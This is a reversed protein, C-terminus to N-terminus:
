SQMLYDVAFQAFLEMGTLICGEDINFSPSHLPHTLKNECNYGNRESREHCLLDHLNRDVKGCGLRFYTSPVKQSYFSFDESVMSPESCIILNSDGIVQKASKVFFETVDRNNLLVPALKEIKLEYEVDMAQAIGKLMQQMMEPIKERTETDLSRIGGKIIAEEPIINSSSGSNFSCVSIVASHLPNIRRSIISQIANVVQCGALIPDVTMHPLAGHGGRGKIVFEFRDMAAFVSGYNVMVKGAPIEPWVHAGICAKVDPKELVGEKIMLAAGGLTEEAPQFILKVNGSLENKLSYIIEAAGLVCAVHADHGCAHMRKMIESKYTCENEESISLADMDARIAVTAGSMKGKIIGVVGTKAIETRVEIGLRKLYDSIVGSTEFEEFSLEPRSHIKRRVEIIKGLIERSKYKIEEEFM